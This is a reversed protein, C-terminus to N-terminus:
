WNSLKHVDLITRDYVPEFIDIRESYGSADDTGQHDDLWGTKWGADAGTVDRFSPGAKKGFVWAFKEATDGVGAKRRLFCGIRDSVFAIQTGDPSYRPQQDWGTGSTIRTATGGAIPLTYLDGLIDFVITKGDASVDLSIWSAEDTSFRLTRPTALPLGATRAVAKVASDNQAATQAALARGTVSLAIVLAATALPGRPVPHLPNM